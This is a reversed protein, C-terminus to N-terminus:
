APFRFGFCTPVCLAGAGSNLSSIQLDGESAQIDDADIPSDLAYSGTLTAEVQPPETSWRFPGSMSLSIATGDARSMALTGSFQGTGDENVLITVENITVVAGDEEDSRTLFEGGITGPSVDLAAAAVAADNDVQTGEDTGAPVAAAVEPIPTATPIPIATATPEPTPAATVPQGQDDVVVSASEDVAAAEVALAPNVPETTTGTVVGIATVDPKDSLGILLAVLVVGASLLAIVLFSSWTNDRAHVPTM